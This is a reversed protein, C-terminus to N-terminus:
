QAHAEEGNGNESTVILQGPDSLFSAYDCPMEGREDPQVNFTGCIGGGEQMDVSYPPSFDTDSLSITIFFGEDVFADDGETIESTTLEGVKTANDSSLVLDFTRTEKEEENASTSSECGASFVTVLGIAMLAVAPKKFFSLFPSVPFGTFSLAM